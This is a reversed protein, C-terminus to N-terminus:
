TVCCLAKFIVANFFFINFFSLVPLTGFFNYISMRAIVGQEELEEFEISLNEELHPLFFGELANFCLLVLFFSKPILM